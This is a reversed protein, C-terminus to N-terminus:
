RASGAAAGLPWLYKGAVVARRAGTAAPLTGALGHYGHYAMAAFALAERDKPGVGLEAVTRVAVGPMRQAIAAVLAPNEAGGGALLVEDLTRGGQRLTAYAAAVSAATFACLTALLDADGLDTLGPALEATLRGLEFTERGTTKPFPLALYPHRLLADLAADDVRGEAALRGGDDFPLGRRRAMAEDMLCNAPGTDFAVVRDPDLDPPLYTLNSIGGLNHVARGVGRRGFLVLDGFSVLPAGGGGAAMDSQRFDCAVPVRCRELTRAAEGVQLTAVTRWGREPDVRPVHYVNQGSLAILDVRHRSAVADCAGAYAEGVEAHLQALELPDARGEELAAALRRRLAEDYPVSARDEVAWGLGDAGPEFRVLVLDMGDLSTGSMLSLVRMPAPPEGDAPWRPGRM